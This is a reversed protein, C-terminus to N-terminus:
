SPLPRARDISSRSAIASCSGAFEDPGSVLEITHELRQWKVEEPEVEVAAVLANLEAHLEQDFQQQLQGSVFTYVIFSYSALMVALAALFFLSVRQVLKM